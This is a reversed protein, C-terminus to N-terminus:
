SHYKIIINKIQKNLQIDFNEETSDLWHNLKKHWFLIQVKNSQM